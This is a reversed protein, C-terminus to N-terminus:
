TTSFSKLCNTFASVPSAKDNISFFGGYLGLDILNTSSVPYETTSFPLSISTYKGFSLCSHLFFCIAIIFCYKPSLKLTKNIMENLKCITAEVFISLKEDSIKKKEPEKKTVEKFPLKSKLKMIENTLTKITELLTKTLPSENEFYLFLDCGDVLGAEGAMEVDIERGKYILRSNKIDKGQLKSKEIFQKVLKNLKLRENFKFNLERKSLEDPGIYIVKVTYFVDCNDFFVNYLSKRNVFKPPNVNESLSYEQYELLNILNLIIRQVYFDDNLNKEMLIDKCGDVPCIIVGDKILDKVIKKEYVHGCISSRVPEIYFNKTIPCKM